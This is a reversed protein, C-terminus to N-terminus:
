HKLNFRLINGSTLDDGENSIYLAGGLDFAIGEPQNFKNSNLHFVESVVWDTNTVVLLKNAASIIYWKRLQPQYALGSPHFEKPSKGSLKRIKDVNVTIRGSVRLEGGSRRLRYAAAEHAPDHDRCDKCLVILEGSTSGAALGEYEGKPLVKKWETVAAAKGNANESEPFAYITGNSNLVYITDDVIALDEYDGKGAFKTHKQNSEGWKLRFVSGDEDQIAYVTDSRGGSFAIGSVESLSEPMIFKESKGLDYDTYVVQKKNETTCNAALLGLMLITISFLRM